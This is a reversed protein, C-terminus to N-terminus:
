RHGLRPQLEISVSNRRLASYTSHWPPPAPRPLSHQHGRHSLRKSFRERFLTIEQHIEDIVSNQEAELEAREGLYSHMLARVQEDSLRSLLDAREIATLQSIDVQPAPESTPAPFQALVSLPTALFVVVLGAFVILSRRAELSSKGAPVVVVLLTSVSRDASTRFCAMRKIDKGDTCRIKKIGM